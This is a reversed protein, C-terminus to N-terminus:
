RTIVIEIDESLKKSNPVEIRLGLLLEKILVENLFKVKEPFSKNYFILAKNM